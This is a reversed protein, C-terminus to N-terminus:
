QYDIFVGAFPDYISDVDRKLTGDELYHKVLLIAWTAATKKELHKELTEALFKAHEKEREDDYGDGNVILSIDNTVADIIKATTAKIILANFDEMLRDHKNDIDDNISM